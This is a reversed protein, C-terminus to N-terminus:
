KENEWNEACEVLGPLNPWVKIGNPTLVKLLPKGKGYVIKEIFVFHSESCFQFLFCDNKWWQKEGDVGEYAPGDERHLLGNFYWLKSGDEMEAVGTYERPTCRWDKFRIIEMIM